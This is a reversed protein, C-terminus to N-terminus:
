VVVDAPTFEFVSKLPRLVFVNGEVLPCTAVTNATVDALIGAEPYRLTTNVAGGEESIFM